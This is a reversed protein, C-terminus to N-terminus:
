RRQWNKQYRENKKTIQLLDKIYILGKKKHPVSVGEWDRLANFANNIPIQKQFYKIYDYKSLKEKISISIGWDLIILFLIHAWTKKQQTYSKIM